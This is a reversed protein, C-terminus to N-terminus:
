QGKEYEFLTKCHRKYMAFIKDFTEKNGSRLVFELCRTDGDPNKVVNVVAKTMEKHEELKLEVRYYDESKVFEHKKKVAYEVIADILLDGDEVVFFKTFKKIKKSEKAKSKKAKNETKGKTIQINGLKQIKLKRLNFSTIIEGTSAVPGNYWKHDKVEQLTLRDEPDFACMRSFLDIFDDSFHEDEYVQWFKEIHAGNDKWIRKYYRDTPEAKIFPPHQSLLIFLVIASAFLDAQDAKYPEGALIEPWMYGYTGKKTKWVQTQTTFGFDAIKLNYDEDMLLNEPKIDRHYYGKNHMYELGEILQHFYFRSEKESFKGSESIFDFIEGNEAYEMAIYNVPLESGDEKVANSKSSYGFLKIISPHDFKEM